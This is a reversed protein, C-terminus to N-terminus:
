SGSGGEFVSRLTRLGRSVRQRVVSESCALQEALEAYDKDEVVRGSVAVRQDDPLAELATLAPSGSLENIRAINADDLVLVEMKLRLRTENEVRGRDLSRSLVNRAIGFIWVRAEGLAPDFRARGELARAFTEAALDASIDPRGTRRLFFGLVPDELRRYLLAFADADGTLLEADTTNGGAM